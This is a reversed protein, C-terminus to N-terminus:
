NLKTSRWRATVVVLAVFMILALPMSPAPLKSTPEGRRGQTSLLSGVGSGFEGLRERDPTQERRSALRELASKFEEADRRDFNWELIRNEADSPSSFQSTRSQSLLLQRGAASDEQLAGFTRLGAISVPKTPPEPPESGVIVSWIPIGGPREWFLVNLIGLTLMAMVAMMQLVLLRPKQM